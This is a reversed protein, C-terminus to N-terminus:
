APEPQPRPRRVARWALRAVTSMWWVMGASGLIWVLPAIQVVYRIDVINALSTTVAVILWVVLLGLAAVRGRRPGVFLLVLGVLGHLTLVWWAKVLVSSADWPVEALATPIGSDVRQLYIGTKHAARPTQAVADVFGVLNEWTGALYTGPHAAIARTATDGMIAAADEPKYGARVLARYVFSFSVPVRTGSERFRDYAKEAIAGGLTEPPPLPLRDRDFAKVWLAHGTQNSLTPDGVAIANRIVWPALVVATVVVAVGTGRLTRRWDRTAIALVIPVALVLVQGNPKMYAAGAYALAALAVLRLDLRERPVAAEILAVTGAFLLLGFLFDPLVAHETVILFPTTAALVGAVIGTARGFWRWGVATIAGAFAAGLMHQLFAVAEAPSGPLVSLLALLVPYGPTRYAEGWETGGDTFGHGAALDRAINLYLDSDLWVGASLLLPLRVVLALVAIAIAWPAPGARNVTEWARRPWARSGTQSGETASATATMPAFTNRTGRAARSGRVRALTPAPL